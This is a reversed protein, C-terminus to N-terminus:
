IKAITFKEERGGSIVKVYYIGAAQSSMDVEMPDFASCDASTRFVTAGAKNIISVDLSSDELPRINLVKKVPNPYLVLPENSDPVLVKFTVVCEEERADTATISIETMGKGIATIHYTTGSPALHVVGQVTYNVIYKLNEGDEDTIYEALNISTGQGPATLVINKLPKSLKPTHNPEITYNLVKETTLRHRDTARIVAKYSGPEAKLADIQATYGKEETYSWTFAESGPEVEVTFSHGDPDSVEFGFTLTEHSKVSISEGITGTSIVPATNSGTAIQRIASKASVHGIYDRAVVCIYYDTNFELEPLNVNLTEGVGLLGVKYTSSQVGSPLKDPDASELAARDKSYLVSYSYAKVDDPDATVAWGLSVFNSKVEAGTIESVPEPAETGGLSFSGLADVMPGITSYSPANAYSAGKLLRELLMENTFGPGGFHSAILAAVGSVHPCAMSTGQMQGYQGGTICNLIQPGVYVDGGPACIDVWDGYNSYYAKTRQSSVAGVAVVKDYMAPWAYSWAENGAAFIVVGGKMPSGPLQEGNEDCGAYKIFYDIGAKTDRDIDSDKALEESAYNIGWSNSAIVAGHNAAWTFAAGDNGGLTKTEGPKDPDPVVRLMECSMIRVGGKGDSGGAIGCVGKGNGNIAAIVGACHTGHDGPEIAFGTHGSIFCRSGERGAPLCIDALDPHDLQVGQDLVAVIVDSSGTCFRDWVPLVNVDCGSTYKSGLSGDNYLAWQRPFSPDNFFATIERKRVPFVDKIGPIDAVDGVAKTAPQSEDYRLRYWLHLGERRQREEWRGGDPFVREFGTIGPLSTVEGREIKQALDETLEATLLGPEYFEQRTSEEIIQEPAEPSQECALLVLLGTGILTTVTRLRM